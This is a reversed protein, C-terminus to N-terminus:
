HDHENWGERTEEVKAMLADVLKFCEERRFDNPWGYDRYVQKIYLKDVATGWNGGHGHEADFNQGWFEEETVRGEREERADMMLRGDCPVLELKTFRKKMRDFYEQVGYSNDNCRIMDEYIRGRKADVILTIGGSEWGYTLPILSDGLPPEQRQDEWDEARSNQFSYDEPYKGNEDKQFWFSTAPDLSSYDILISKYEFYTYRPSSLYPLHRMVSLTFDTKYDSPVGGSSSSRTLHAWSTSPPTKLDTPSYHLTTLFQYFTLFMTAYELPPTPTGNPPATKTPATAQANHALAPNPNSTSAKEYM